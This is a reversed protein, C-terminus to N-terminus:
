MDEMDVGVVRVDYGKFLDTSSLLKNKKDILLNFNINKRKRKVEFIDVNKDLENAAVLDLENEGKSDWWRGILTYNQSEIAKARFYRELTLGSFTTYDRKIGRRLQVYA